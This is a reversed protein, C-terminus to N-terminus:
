TLERMQALLVVMFATLMPLHRFGHSVDLVVSDKSRVQSQLIDWLAMHEDRETNYGILRCVVERNMRNSLASSWEDLLPQSLPITAGDPNRVVAEIQTAVDTLQDDWLEDPISEILADWSSQATGLVVWRDPPHHISDLYQLLAIGALSASYTGGGSLRSFDYTTHTYKGPRSSDGIPKGRGIFSILIRM